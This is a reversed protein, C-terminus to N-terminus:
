KKEWMTIMKDHDKVFAGPQQATWYKHMHAEGIDIIWVVSM